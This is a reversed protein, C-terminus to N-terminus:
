RAAEPEASECAAEGRLSYILAHLESQLNSLMSRVAEVDEPNDSELIKCALAVVHAQNALEHVLERRKNRWGNTPQALGVAHSSPITTGSLTRAIRADLAEVPTAPPNTKVPFDESIRSQQEVLRKFEDFSPKKRGDYTVLGLHYENEDEHFGEIAERDPDLDVLCYWYVRKAPADAAERLKAVQLDFRSECAQHLDWTALGTETIWVPRDQTYEAISEVKEAWGHWRGRWEWNPHDPWWMEPFGHIAIVDVHDLAGYTEMLELWNSDVPIMGGLVTPKGCEKVTQAARRTIEGFKAWQPDFRRFDWRYRNNPENWLELHSFRDGFLDIVEGLFDAYDQLRQAPSACVQGEAISPPTHWISLLVDFDALREMQWRYWAEGGPRHFDAWSIGTRLHRIGLEHMLKICRDVMAYDEYHFWQCIGLM